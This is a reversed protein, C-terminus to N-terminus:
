RHQFPDLKLEKEFYNKTYQLSKTNLTFVYIVSTQLLMLLVRARISIVATYNRHIVAKLPKLTSETEVASNM